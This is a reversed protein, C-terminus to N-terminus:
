KMIEFFKENVVTAKAYTTGGRAGIVIPICSPRRRIKLYRKLVRNRKPVDFNIIKVRRILFFRSIKEPKIEKKGKGEERLRFGIEELGEVL